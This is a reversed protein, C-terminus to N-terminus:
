QIVSFVTSLNGENDETQIEYAYPKLGIKSGNSIFIFSQNNEFLKEGDNNTVVSSNTQYNVQYLTDGTNLNMIKLYVKAVNSNPKLTLTGQPITQISVDLSNQPVAKYSVRLSQVTPHEQNLPDTGEQSNIKPSIFFGLIIALRFVNKIRANKMQLINHM